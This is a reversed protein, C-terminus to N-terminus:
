GAGAAVSHGGLVVTFTDSTMMAHLLRRVLGEKSRKPMWGGKRQSSKKQLFDGPVTSRDMGDSYAWHFIKKSREILQEPTMQDGPYGYEAYIAEMARSVLKGADSLYHNVFVADAQWAGEPFEDTPVDRNPYKSIFDDTPRDEEEDDWFHWHGWKQTLEEATKEDALPFNPLPQYTAFKSYVNIPNPEDSETTSTPPLPTEVNDVTEVTDVTNVNDVMEVTEVSEQTVPPVTTNGASTATSTSTSIPEKRQSNGVVEEGGKESIFLLCLLVLAAVIVVNMMFSRQFVPQLLGLSGGGGNSNSGAKKTGRKSGVLSEAEEMELAKM